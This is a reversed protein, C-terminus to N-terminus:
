KIVSLKFASQEQNLRPENQHLHISELIRLDTEHRAFDIIRFNDITIQSISPQCKSNHDFIASYPKNTLPRDTRYSIGAHESVRTKLARVSSGLYGVNCNPCIYEYIIGSRLNKHIQDKFKFLNSLKSTNSAIPIFNIQPYFPTLKSKLEKLLDTTKDGIYPINFYFQLKPATHINSKPKYIDNLFNNVKQYYISETFGNNIFFTKLFNIEKHFLIYNSTLNYARFLLTSIANTKFKLPCHSFFSIGLGSFTPKRYISYSKNAKNINVDLFPLTNNNENEMTFKINNHKTNLYNLFQRAHNSEKFIIFTDDVYRKYFVPKFNTPCEHLWQKEHYGLFLNAFTSSIPSGMAVGDLQQYLNNDFIFFTDKSVINLLSKFEKKDLNRFTNGDKYM